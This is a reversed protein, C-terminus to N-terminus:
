GYISAFRNVFRWMVDLIELQNRCTLHILYDYIGAVLINLTPHTWWSLSPIKGLCMCDCLSLHTIFSTVCPFTLLLVDNLRM